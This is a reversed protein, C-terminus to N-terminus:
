TCKRERIPHETTARRLAAKSVINRRVRVKSCTPTMVCHSTMRLTRSAELFCTIYHVFTFSWLPQIPKLTPVWGVFPCQWQSTKALNDIPSGRSVTFATQIPVYVVETASCNNVNFSDSTTAAPSVRIDIGFVLIM